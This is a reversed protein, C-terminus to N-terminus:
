TSKRASLYTVGNPGYREWHPQERNLHFVEGTRYVQHTEGWGIAIEGSVILAQAEFPHTHVDVFGNAQRSVEVPNDFGDDHMAQVFAKLQM